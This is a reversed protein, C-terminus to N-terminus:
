KELFEFINGDWCKGIVVCYGKEVTNWLYCFLGEGVSAVWMLIIRGLM